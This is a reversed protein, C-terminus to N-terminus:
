QVISFINISKKSHSEEHLYVVPPRLYFCGTWGDVGIAMEEVEVFAHVQFAQGVAAGFVVSVVTRQYAVDDSINVDM